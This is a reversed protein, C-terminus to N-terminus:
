TDKLNPYLMMRLVQGKKISYRIETEYKQM